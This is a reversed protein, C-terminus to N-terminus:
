GLPSLSGNYVTPIESTGGFYEDYFVIYYGYDPAAAFDNLQSATAHLTLYTNEVNGDSVTELPATYGLSGLRDFEARVEESEGSLQVGDGFLEILVRYKVEDGREELANKLSESFEVGGNYVAKDASVYKGDGFSSIMPLVQVPPEVGNYPLFPANQPDAGATHMDPLNVPTSGEPPIDVNQVFINQTDASPASIEPQVYETDTQVQTVPVVAIDHTEEPATPEKVSNKAMKPVAIVAAAAVLCFCAALAGFRLATKKRRVVPVAADRVFDARVMGIADQLLESKM